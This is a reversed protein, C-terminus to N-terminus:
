INNLNIFRPSRRPPIQSQGYLALTCAVLPSIDVSSSRRSWAWSDGLRRKVAGDLAATLEPTGLHRLKGDMAADFFAGCAQAHEKAGLTEPDVRARHLDALLSGAPGAPDIFVGFPKHTKVLEALREPVWGTGARHDVVEIHILGDSRKGAAAIAAHSRDPSVDLALALPDLARSSTDVLRAWLELPIVPDTMSVVWRNLYARSFESVDLARFDAAVAAEDVTVGLAPMCSRWTEPDGPDAGDEASWEFYASGTTLRSAALQRGIEVKAHLYSSLTPTGATSVIWFQPQRRTMLAPRLAQELRADPHAHAEDLVALDITSGHGSKQTSAVLGLTSGTTFRLREHGSTLRASIYKKLPGVKLDPWWDDFMKKRADAGTQATYLIAQDRDHLARLLCLILVLTSKGQQRPVTLVVDRYVLHGDDDLELATDLVAAQWALLPTGLAEAINAAAHGLTPRDTRPTAWRPACIV